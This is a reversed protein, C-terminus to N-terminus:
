RRKGGAFPRGSFKRNAGDALERVMRAAPGEIHPECVKGASVMCVYTFRRGDGIEPGVYSGDPLREWTHQQTCHKCRALIKM